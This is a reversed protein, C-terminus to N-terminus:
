HYPSWRSRCLRRCEKGVRREESRDNVGAVVFQGAHADDHCAACEKGASRGLHMGDRLNPTPVHCAECAASAHAKELVFGTWRAHDFATPSVDRFTEVGHCRACGTRGDVVAPSDARDFRGDHPDRHCTECRETPGPYRKAVKGLAHKEDRGEGHCDECKARGHGGALAFGTFLGHDFRRAVDGGFREVDHCRECTARGDLSLPRGAREFVGDHVDVHCTDCRESPGPFREAAFGFTREPFEAHPKAVHCSECEARAHAGALAFPTRLGHDFRKRDVDSFTETGHCDACGPAPEGRSAALRAFEGKHVDVHCAECTQKDTRFDRPGEAGAALPAHCADCKARVHAGTLAFATRAHATADFSHTAFSERAHCEVCQAGRFAGKAFEGQHPDGHCDACAEPKRGPYREAFTAKAPEHCQECRAREHPKSLAFGSAAHLEPRMTPSDKEFAGRAADHCLTCTADRAIRTSSAVGDLFPRTHRNEHCEDCSRSPKGVVLEVAFASEPDHCKECKQAHGGLLPFSAPHVFNAADKFPLDQGHCRACDTGFKGKHADEHCTACAQSLGLFRKEGEKLAPEEAARHCKACALGAHKGVLRYELGAHDFAAIKSVGARAFAADGALEAAEGHHETHCTACSDRDAAAVLRGHLGSHKEISDGVDRHCELCDDVMDSSDHCADCGDAGALKAVAAHSSALPGPSTKDRDFWVLALVLFLSAAALLIKPVSSRM